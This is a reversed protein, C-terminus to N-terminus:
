DKRSLPDRIQKLRAQSNLALCAFLIVLCGAGISLFGTSGFYMAGLSVPDPFFRPGGSLHFIERFTQPSERSINMKLFLLRRVIWAQCGLWSAVLTVSGAYAVLLATTLRSM